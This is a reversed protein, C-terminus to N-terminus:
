ASEHGLTVSIPDASLRNHCSSFPCSKTSYAKTAANIANAETAASFVREPESLFAKVFETAFM